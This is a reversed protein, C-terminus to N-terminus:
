GLRKRDGGPDVGRFYLGHQVCSGGNRSDSWVIGYGSGAFSIAPYLSETNNNTVATVGVPAGTGSYRDLVIETDGSAADVRAVAFQSGTWALAFENPSAGAIPTTTVTGGSTVRSLFLGGGDHLIVWDPPAWILNVRFVGNFGTGGMHIPTSSVEAEGQYVNLVVTNNSILAIGVQSGNWAVSPRQAIPITFTTSPCPGGDAFTMGDIGPAAGDGGLTGDNPAAGDDLAGIREFDWRCGLLAAGAVLVWAGRM